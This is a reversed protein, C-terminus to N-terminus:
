RVSAQEQICVSTTSTNRHATRHLEKGRDQRRKDLRFHHGNNNLWHCGHLMSSRVRCFFDQRKAAPPTSTGHVSAPHHYTCSCAGRSSTTSARCPPTCTERLALRRVPRILFVCKCREAAVCATSVARSGLLSTNGARRSPPLCYHPRRSRRCTRAPTHHRAILPVHKSAPLLRLLSLISVNSQTPQLRLLTDAKTDVYDTQM